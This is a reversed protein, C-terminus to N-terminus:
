TTPRHRTLAALLADIQDPDLDIGQHNGNHDDLTLRIKDHNRTAILEDGATDTVTHVCAAYGFFLWGDIRDPIRSPCIPIALAHPADYRRFRLDAADFLEEMLACAATYPLPEDAVITYGATEAITGTYGQAGFSGQFGAVMQQYAGPATDLDVYIEFRHTPNMSM